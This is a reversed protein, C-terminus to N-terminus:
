HIFLTLIWIFLAIGGMFVLIIPLFVTVAAIILALFDGKEFSAEKDKEIEKKELLERFRERQFM